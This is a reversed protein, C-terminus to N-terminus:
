IELEEVEISYLGCNKCVNITVIYSNDVEGMLNLKNFTKGEYRDEINSIVYSGNKTYVYLNCELFDFVKNKDETGAKCESCPLNFYAKVFEVKNSSNLLELIKKEDIDKIPNVDDNIFYELNQETLAYEKEDFYFKYEM